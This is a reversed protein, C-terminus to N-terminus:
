LISDSRLWAEVVRVLGDGNMAGWDVFNYLSAMGKYVGFRWFPRWMLTLLAGDLLGSLLMLLGRLVLHNKIGYHFCIIEIIILIPQLAFLITHEFHVAQWGYLHWLIYEHMSGSVTFVAFLALVKRAPSSDRNQIKNFILDNFVGKFFRHWCRSWFHAITRAEYINGFLPEYTAIHSLFEQVYFSASNEVPSLVLLKSHPFIAKHISVSMGVIARLLLYYIEWFTANCIWFAVLMLGNTKYSRITFFSPDFADVPLRPLAFAFFTAAATFLFTRIISPGEGSVTWYKITAKVPSDQKSEASGTKRRHRLNYPTTGESKNAPTDENTKKAAVDSKQSTQDESRWEKPIGVRISSMLKFFEWIQRGVNGEHSEILGKRIIDYDTICFLIVKHAYLWLLPFYLWGFTEWQLRIFLPLFYWYGFILASAFLHAFSRSNKSFKFLFFLPPFGLLFLLVANVESYTISNSPYTKPPSNTWSNFTQQFQSLGYTLDLLPTLHPLTFMVASPESFTM